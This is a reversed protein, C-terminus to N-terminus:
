SSPVRGSAWCKPQKVSRAAWRFLAVGVVRAQRPNLDALRALIENVALIEDAQDAGPGM